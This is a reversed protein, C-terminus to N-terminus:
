TSRAASSLVTSLTQGDDSAFTMGKSYDSLKIRELLFNISGRLTEGPLKQGDYEGSKTYVYILMGHYRIRAISLMVKAPLSRFWRVLIARRYISTPSSAKIVDFTTRDYFAKLARERTKKDLQLQAPPKYDEHITVTGDTSGDGYDPGKDITLTLELIQDYLEQPLNGLLSCLRGSEEELTAPKLLPNQGAIPPNREVRRRIVPAM